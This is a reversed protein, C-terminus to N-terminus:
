SVKASKIVSHIFEIKKAVVPSIVFPYFDSLGMSRNLDNIALALPVWPDLLSQANPANYPDRPASRSFLRFKSSRGVNLRPAVSYTNATELADVMHLYHAWSEAWDEWPHATAYASIYNQEWDSLPGTEHYTALTKAYDAREDGFLARFRELSKENNVLANWYYHGVEHRFHGILTRYSESFQERIHERVSADAESVNLTIVGSEHGTMADAMIDFALPPLDGDGNGNNIPLGLKLLGYILRRKAKEFEFWRETNGDVDLDPITRNLGCSLCLQGTEEGQVLWNCVGHDYNGCYTKPRSRGELTTLLGNDSPFLSRMTLKESDFGLPVGCHECIVNDFYVAQGCNECSFVKM